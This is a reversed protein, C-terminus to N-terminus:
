KQPWFDMLEVADLARTVFTDLGTDKSWFEGGPFLYELDALKSLGAQKAWEAARDEMQAKAMMRGPILPLAKLKSRPIEGRLTGLGKVFALMEETTYPKATLCFTDSGSKFELLRERFAALSIRGSWRIASFDICSVPAGGNQGRLRLGKQKASALLGEALHMFDFFPHKHKGIAVGTSLTLKEGNKLCLRKSFDHTQSKKEFNRCINVALPLALQGATVIMLDDGGLMLVRLPLQKMGQWAVWSYDKYSAKVADVVANRLLEELASSFAEMKDESVVKNKIHEGISNGDAMILGIFSKEGGASDQFNGSQSETKLVLSGFDDPIIEEVPLFQGDSGKPYGVTEQIIRHIGKNGIPSIDKTRAKRKTRCPACFFEKDKKEIAPRIGCVSCRRLFPSTVVAIGTYSHSDHSREKSAKLARLHVEARDNADEFTGNGTEEVCWTATALLTKQPYLNAVTRAFKEAITRDTFAAKTVGGGNVLLRDGDKKIREFVEKTEARNIEDLLSSAGAMERLRDTECIYSHIQDVDVITLWKKQM